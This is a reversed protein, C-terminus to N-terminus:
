GEMCARKVAKQWGQYRRTREQLSMNAAFVRDPKWLAAIEQNITEMNPIEQEPKVPDAPRNAIM